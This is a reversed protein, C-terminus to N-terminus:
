RANNMKGKEVKTPTFKSLENFGMEIGQVGQWLARIDAGLEDNTYERGQAVLGFAANRLADAPKHSYLRGNRYLGALLVKKVAERMVEDQNFAILKETENESLFEM